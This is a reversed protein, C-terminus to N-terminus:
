VSGYTGFNGDRYYIKLYNADITARTVVVRSDCGTGTIWILRQDSSNSGGDGINIYFEITYDSANHQNVYADADTYTVISSQGLGSSSWPFSIYGSAVTSEPTGSPTATWNNGSVDVHSGATDYEVQFIPRCNLIGFEADTGTISISGAGLGIGIGLDSGTINIEGGGLQIYRSAGVNIGPPEPFATIAHEEKIRPEFDRPDVCRRCVMHGTWERFLEYSKYQFGCRDCIVNWDKM